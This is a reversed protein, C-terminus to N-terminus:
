RMIAESNVGVNTCTIGKCHGCALICLLGNKRYSCTNKDCMGHCNCKVLKLLSAPAADRQMRVRKFKKM